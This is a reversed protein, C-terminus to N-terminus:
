LWDKVRKKYELFADGYRKELISDQKKIFIFRSILYTIIVLLVAFISNLLFGLGVSMVTLGLNTPNRTYKYPGNLFFNIDRDNNKGTKKISTTSQAWYVLVSGLIIMLVGLYQFAISHLLNSKFVQGLFVGLVIAIFFVTYTHFLIVHIIGVTESKEINIKKSNKNMFKLLFSKILKIM